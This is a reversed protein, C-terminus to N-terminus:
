HREMHKQDTSTMLAQWRHREMHKQHTSAMLGQWGIFGEVAHKFIRITSRWLSLVGPPEVRHMLVQDLM